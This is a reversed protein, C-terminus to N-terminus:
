FILVEFLTIYESLEKDFSPVRQRWLIYGCIIGFILILLKVETRLDLKFVFNGMNCDQISLQHPNRKIHTPKNGDCEKIILEFLMPPECTKFNDCSITEKIKDECKVKVQHSLLGLLVFILILLVMIPAAFKRPVLTREEKSLPFFLNTTTVGLLWIFVLFRPSSDQIVQSITPFAKVIVFLVDALVVFGVVYLLIKKLRQIGKSDRKINPM